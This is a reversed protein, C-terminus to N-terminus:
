HGIGIVDVISFRNADMGYSSCNDKGDEIYGKKPPKYSLGEGAGGIHM